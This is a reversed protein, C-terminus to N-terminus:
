STMCKEYLSEIIGPPTATMRGVAVESASPRHFPFIGSILGKRDVLYHFTRGLCNKMPACPDIM